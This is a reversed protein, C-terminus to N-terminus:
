MINKDSGYPYKQNMEDSIEKVKRGLEGFTSFQKEMYPELQKVWRAREEPPLFYTAVNKEKLDRINQAPLQNVMVDGLWTEANATEELLITQIHAPMNKWIKLNISYGVFSPVGAFATYYQCVDPYAFVIGGAANMTAADVVHKQLSEYIETFVVTVPAAELHKLLTSTSPSVSAVLLGKLDELAHIPKQSWLGIGGTNMLALAKANFKKQLVEDFLPTLPKCAANAAFDNAFLFPMELLSLSPELFSFMGWPSAAMEVAGIRVADFFEPLKAIAGGTHVEIVYENKARDNFRKAMEKDRFTMPWNGEPTAIVLRLIVPKKDAFSTKPQVFMGLTALVALTVIGLCVRKM